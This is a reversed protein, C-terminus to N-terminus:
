RLFGAFHDRAVKQAVARGIQRLADDHGIADLRQVDQPRLDRLGLRNLGRRSLDTDYRLYTFLKPAVSGAVGDMDELEQDIEDGILCKDFARCLLDKQSSATAMLGAPISIATRLLNPGRSRPEVRGFYGARTGVSVLLLRDEGTPWCLRYPKLTAMLFLQFAPNNFVTGGGDVFLFRHGDVEILEPPFFYPAATSARVLQWLPLAQNSDPRDPANFTARPDNSIPWPSDTTLNRLVILLLTRLDASGLLTESGLERRLLDAFRTADYRHRLRRHLPAPAFVAGGWERFVDRIRGVRAGKALLAAIVGGTSTGAVYDFYDALVFRNDRGLEEQLLREFRALVEIAVPGRLGGGDLALLNRPSAKNLKDACREHM